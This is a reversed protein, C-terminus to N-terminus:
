GRDPGVGFLARYDTSDDVDQLVGVDDVEVDLVAAGCGRVVARAGIDPDAARLAAFVGRSFVVPHGHRGGHVARAIPPRSQAFAGVVAAITGARIRPMDVPVVLLGDAGAQEAADVACLLSSLQGRDTDPNTVVRPPQALSAVEDLVVVDDSRLVVLVDDIGGGRFASVLETLFTGPGPPCPLLAKPRGMRTSRGAALIAGVIM